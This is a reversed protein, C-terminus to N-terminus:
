AGLAPSKGSDLAGPWIYQDQWSPPCAPSGSCSRNARGSGTLRAGIVVSASSRGPRLSCPSTPPPPAFRVASWGPQARSRRGGRQQGAWEADPGTLLAQAAHLALPQNGKLLVIYHAQLQETVLRATAKTSHLADLTVVMGGIDLGALLSRAAPGEGRTDSLQCQGVVVGTEHTIAGILFVKTADTRAGRAEKGDIALAPLLGAPAPHDAARQAARRQECEIPGAAPSIQPRSAAGRVVDATYGCTATDLAASDVTALVRRFTRQSPLHYRGTLPDYRAGLRALKPQSCRTAWQWIAAISDSGVVLTACAALTLIAVLPHRRGPKARRDPVQRLRKVLASERHAPDAALEAEWLALDALQDLAPTIPSSSPV